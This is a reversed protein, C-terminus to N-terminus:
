GNHLPEAAFDREGLDRLIAASTMPENAFGRAAIWRILSPKSHDNMMRRLIDEHDEVRECLERLLLAHGLSRRMELANLLADLENEDLGQWGQLVAEQNKRDINNFSPRCWSTAARPSRLM